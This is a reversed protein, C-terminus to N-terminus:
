IDKKRQPRSRQRPIKPWTLIFTSGKGAESQVNIRGGHHYAIKKVLALGMGSGEVEDRRRLTQFMEFIKAHFNADIGPGDDTIRFEFNKDKVDVSIQIKGEDKDHHKIANNILNHFIQELPMRAISVADLAPDIDVTFGDPINLLGRIDRLLDGAPLTQSENVSNGARSYELLDNLLNEMRAVRGRLKKVRERNENDMVADLDEELWKSLNDIARLPSKLDHSAIYAFKELDENSLVLDEMTLRLDEETKKRQTVDRAITNYTREGQDMMESVSIEMDLTSGDKRVGTLELTQGILATVLEPKAKGTDANMVESFRKAVDPMIIRNSKGLLEEENYGFMKEAAKNMSTIEGKMNSTWIGDAARDMINEFREAVVEQEDALKEAFNIANRSSRALLSFIAVLLADIALGTGLIFNPTNTASALDFDETSWINFTWDRGQMPITKERAYNAELRTQSHSGAAEDFLVDDGDSIKLGVLRQEQGLTGNMLNEFIFPAYVLGHFRERREAITGLPGPVYAPAYLLFGPTQKEDQVLVIPATIRTEGSDRAQKAATFRNSEHAMDLGVAAANIEMPEIYTIPWTETGDHPPHIKFDPRSKRQKALFSERMEPKVEFIVGIGNIGPYKARINLEESYARWEELAVDQHLVSVAAVSSLLVDEYKSMRETVLDVIQEAQRDFRAQTKEENQTLTYQWAALTLLFSFAIIAWHHWKLRGADQLREKEQEFATLNETKARPM